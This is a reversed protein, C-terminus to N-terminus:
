ADIWEQPILANGDRWREVMAARFEPTALEAHDTIIVQFNPNLARVIEFFFRFMEQVAVRDDDDIAEISGQLETDRDPPYFVQTPQDLLLFNPIPREHEVFYQHLALHAILHYGVWNKGSGIRWLPVPGNKTDVVVTAKALDIRTPYQGHELRLRQAWESMQIGILNLISALREEIDSEDLQSSLYNVRERARLVQGRLDSTEDTLTVSELWLSIRGVVMGCRVNLDRIQQTAQEEALVGNIAELRQQIGARLEDYEEQLQQIYARLHPREREVSTLNAQLQALARTIAEAQPVPLTLEQACTPCLHAAQSETSFLEISTLRAAQQHVEDGYGEAEQAYAKAARIAEVKSRAQYQFDEIEGQLQALQDFDTHKQSTPTWTLAQQLLAHLGALTEPFAAKPFIGVSQAETVLSIAKSMGEGKILDAERLARELRVLERKASRLEQELALRDEQIAGLFYPLTDKITQTMYDESQRHFLIGQNAIEDQRQFCYLMAHKITAALPDRTQGVPPTHLNPSIGLKHSLMEVLAEVTTNPEAPPHEPSQVTNGQVIYVRNTTKRGQPPTERAIFLQDHAFQCRLGYWSVTDRIVGEPIRFSDRGLCYEIIDILATKGTTSAGTIVNVAGLRFPLIRRQGQHNYLVIELLQMM